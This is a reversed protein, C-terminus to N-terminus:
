IVLPLCVIVQTGIDQTSNILIFGGNSEVVGKAMSLGLGKGKGVEKTSFFPEYIRDLDTKSIGCGTDEIMLHVVNSAVAECRDCNECMAKSKQELSVHIEKKSSNKLADKANLIIQVLIQKIEEPNCHVLLTDDAYNTMLQIQRGISLQAIEVAERLIPAILVDAKEDSNPQIFHLLQKIMTAADDCSAEINEIKCLVEPSPSKRKALYLNGTIAALINNFNHAVGGVMTELSENKIVQLRLETNHVEQKLHSEYQATVLRNINGAMKWASYTYVLLLVGMLSANSGGSLFMTFTIPIITLFFYAKFAPFYVSTSFVAGSTFGSMFFALFVLHVLDVYPAFLLTALGWVGGMFCASSFMMVKVHTIRKQKLKFYTFLRFLVAGVALATWVILRDSPVSEIMVMNMIAIGVIVAILSSPLNEIFIAIQHATLSSKQLNKV